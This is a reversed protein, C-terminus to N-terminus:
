SRQSPVCVIIHRTHTKLTTAARHPCAHVSVCTDECICCSRLPMVAHTQQPAGVQDQRGSFWFILSWVVLLRLRPPEEAHPLSQASSWLKRLDHSTTSRSCKRNEGLTAAGPSCSINLVDRTRCSWPPNVSLMHDTEIAVAM